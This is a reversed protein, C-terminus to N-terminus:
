EIPLMYKVKISLPYNLFFTVNINGERKTKTTHTREVKLM